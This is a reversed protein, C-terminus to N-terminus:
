RRALVLRRLTDGHGRTRPIDILSFGPGFDKDTKDVRADPWPTYQFMFVIRANERARSGFHLCRCTDVLATTGPPGTLSIVNAEETVSHIDKDELRGDGWHHGLAAAVQDSLDAPLFSFPGDADGVSHINVFCKLQRFDQGDLHFMQSSKTSDNVPSVYLGIAHL